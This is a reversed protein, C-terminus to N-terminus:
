FASSSTAGQLMEVFLDFNEWRWFGSKKGQEKTGRLIKIKINQMIKFAVTYTLLPAM